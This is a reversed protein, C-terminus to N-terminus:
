AMAGLRRKRTSTAPRGVKNRMMVLKVGPANTL